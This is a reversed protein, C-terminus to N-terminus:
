KCDYIQVLGSTNAVVFKTYSENFTIAYPKEIGDNGTLVVDCFRGDPQLRHIESKNYESVYVNGQADVALGAKGTVDYQYIVTGDLQIRRLQGSKCHIISDDHHNFLLSSVIFFMNDSLVITKIIEGNQKLIRIEDTKGVAFCDKSTTIGYWGKGVEITKDLKLNKTNVFQVYSEYPLTIVAKTTGMLISIGFPASKLSLSAHYSLNDEKINYVYVKRGDIEFSCLFVKNDTTVAIDTVSLGTRNLNLQKTIKKTFTTLTVRGPQVQAQQFKVPSHQVGCEERTVLISGISKIDMDGAKEFKLAVEKYLLTMEEVQKVVNQVGKGQERLTLYLQNNSGHEKLFELEQKKKQVVDNLKSIESNDKRLQDINKKKANSLDTKLKEELTNIQKILDNKWKSIEVLIASEVKEMEDVNNKRDQKLNDLTKGINQWEKLTDEFLSSKKIHKSAIELPHVEKCSQHSSPICARCCVIDHQTCYFDLPIDLHVECFNKTKPINLQGISTLDMLHHSKTAKFKKHYEVCDKCLREECDSCFRIAILSKGEGSCPDCYSDSDM